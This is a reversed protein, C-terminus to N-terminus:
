LVRTIFPTSFPDISGLSKAISDVLRCSIHRAGYVLSTPKPSSLFIAPFIFKLSRLDVALSIASGCGRRNPQNRSSSLRKTCGPLLGMVTVSISFCCWLLFSLPPPTPLPGKLLRIFRQLPSILALWATHNDSIFECQSRAARFFSGRLPIAEVFDLLLYCSQPGVSLSSFL